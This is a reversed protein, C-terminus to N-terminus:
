AMSPWSKVSSSASHRYNAFQRVRELAAVSRILNKTRIRPARVGGGLISSGTVFIGRRTYQGILVFLCLVRVLPPSLVLCLARVMRSWSRQIRHLSRHGDVGVHVSKVRGPVPRCQVSRGFRRSLLTKEQCFLSRHNTGTFLLYLAIVISLFAPLGLAYYLYFFGM